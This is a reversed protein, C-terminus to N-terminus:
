WVWLVENDEGEAWLAKMERIVEASLGLSELFEDFDKELQEESPSEGTEGYVEDHHSDLWQAKSLWLDEVCGPVQWGVGLIARAEPSLIRKDYELKKCRYFKAM